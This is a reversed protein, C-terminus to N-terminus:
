RLKPLLLAIAILVAPDTGSQITVLSTDSGRQRTITGAAVDAPATFVCECKFNLEEATEISEECYWVLAQRCQFIEVAISGDTRISIQYWPYFPTGGVKNSSPNGAMLPRSGYVVYKKHDSSSSCQLVAQGTAADRIVFSGNNRPNVCSYETDAALPDDSFIFAREQAAGLFGRKQKRTIKWQKTGLFAGPALVRGKALSSLSKRNARRTSRRQSSSPLRQSPASISFTESLDTETTSCFSVHQATAGPKMASRTPAVADVM